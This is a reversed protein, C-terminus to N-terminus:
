GTHLIIRVSTIRLFDPSSGHMIHFALKLIEFRVRFKCNLWKLNNNIDPCVSDFKERCLVCRAASRIKSDIAKRNMSCCNFWVCSVYYMHSLTLSSVLLKRREYLLLCRLTQLLSLSFNCDHSIKALRKDWKLNCDIVVGV